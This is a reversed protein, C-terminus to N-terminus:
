RIAGEGTTNDVSKACHGPDFWHLARCIWYCVRCRKGKREIKGLRSSITETPDGGLLANGLMDVARAVRVFATFVQKGLWMAVSRIGSPLACLLSRTAGGLARVREGIAAGVVAMVLLLYGFPELIVDAIGTGLAEFIQVLAVCLNHFYRMITNVM